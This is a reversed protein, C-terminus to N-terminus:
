DLPKEANPRPHMCRGCVGNRNSDLIEGCNACKLLSRDTGFVRGVLAGIAAGITGYSVTNLMLWLWPSDSLGHPGRGFFVYALALGPVGVVLEWFDDPRGLARLVWPFAMLLSALVFGIVARRIM